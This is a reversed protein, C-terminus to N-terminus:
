SSVPQSAGVLGMRAHCIAIALADAADDPKIVEDHNLLRAVMQQIESKEARGFGTLNLKVQQPTYEAVKIGSAAGAELIVGRAQSVPVLTKANKFFFIAEVAMVDPQYKEILSLLDSRIMVLRDGASLAKSTSIVGAAICRLDNIGLWDIVGFGVTATGPDIGMIRM